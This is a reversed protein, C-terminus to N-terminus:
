CNKKVFKKCLNFEKVFEDEAIREDKVLIGLIEQEPM